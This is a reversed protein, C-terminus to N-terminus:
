CICHINVPLHVKVPFEDTFTFLTKVLVNHNRTLSKCLNQLLYLKSGHGAKICGNNGCRDLHKYIIKLTYFDQFM